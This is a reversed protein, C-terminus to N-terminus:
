DDGVSIEELEMCREGSPLVTINSIFCKIPQLTKGMICQVDYGEEQEDMPPLISQITSQLLQFTVHFIILAIIYCKLTLITSKPHQPQNPKNECIIVTVAM